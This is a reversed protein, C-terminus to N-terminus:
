PISKSKNKELPITGRDRSKVPGPAFKINRKEDVGVVMANM